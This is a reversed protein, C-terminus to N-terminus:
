PRNRFWVVNNSERGALLLDLRGDGDLDVAKMDYAQQKHGTDIDHATFNGKGDNAYWRVVFATYSAVAADITGDGDFDGIALAHPTGLQPDIAHKKWDPGEFWFVGTGHGCAAFADPRGDRNVDAAKINTAGKEQAILHKTWPADITAGRGWWTFTGAGSDGLLIDGRGDGDLDAFDLYHPRGDTGGKTVVHRVVADEGPRPLQFWVVSNAFFPGSISQAILDPQGDQNVDGLALGHVGNLERDIVHLPWPKDVQHNNEIWAVSFDPGHPLPPLEKGEAKAQRYDIWPVLYRGLAIDPAGDHNVDVTVCYLMKGEQMDFIVHPAFDPAILAYVKTVGMAILDLRGDGNVDVATVSWISEPLSFAHREWNPPSAAAQALSASLVLLRLGRVLRVTRM